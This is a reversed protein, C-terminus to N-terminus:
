VLWTRLPTAYNLGACRMIYWCLVDCALCLGYLNISVTPRDCITSNGLKVNLQNYNSEYNICM